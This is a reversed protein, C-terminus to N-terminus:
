RTADFRERQFALYPEHEPALWRLRLPRDIGLLVRAQSTISPAALLVGQTDFSILLRDFLADLNASLLFGNFVDLREGDSVCESWPRAHSARLAEVQALGTVACGGGWYDLMASRFAQQGVRQRVLREVETGRLNAPLQELATDLDKEVNREVQNPLAHALAAARRLLRSLVDHDLAIFGGSSRAVEPLSRALESCLLGASPSFFQLLFQGQLPSVQAQARHRASGMRVTNADGQLVYEFGHDHGVKELL